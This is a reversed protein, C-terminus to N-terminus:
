RKINVPQSTSFTLETGEKLVVQYGKSKAVATGAGAGGLLGGILAGKKGGVAGGILAGAGAGGAIAGLNRARTSGAEIATTTAHASYSAGEVTMSGIALDLMARDGKAAAKVASVTGSVTSGSPIVTKEGVVVNDKVVGSWADGVQATESSIPTTVTITIATGSPVTIGPNPAPAAAVPAAPAKPKPAPAPAKKPQEPKPEEVPAPPPVQGQPALNGQGQETPNTAFATSDATTTQAEKKAGCGAVSAALVIALSLIIWPRLRM